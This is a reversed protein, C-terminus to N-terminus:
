LYKLIIKDVGCMKDNDFKLESFEQQTIIKLSNSMFEFKIHITIKM